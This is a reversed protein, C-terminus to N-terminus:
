CVENAETYGWDSCAFVLTIGHDPCSLKRAFGKLNM